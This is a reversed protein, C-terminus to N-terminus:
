LRWHLTKYIPLQKFGLKPLKVCVVSNRPYFTLKGNHNRPYLAMGGGGKGIASLQTVVCGDM